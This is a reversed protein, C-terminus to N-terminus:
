GYFNTNPNNLNMPHSDIYGKNKGSGYGVAAAAPMGISAVPHKGVFRMGSKGGRVAIGFLDKIVKWVDAVIPIKGGAATKVIKDLQDLETKVEKSDLYRDKISALKTVQVVVPHKKNVVGTSSATKNFDCTPAEKRLRDEYADFLLNTFNSTATKTAAEKITHFPAGQLASQKIINYLLDSEKNFNADLEHLYDDVKSSLGSLKQHAKKLLGDPVLGNNERATDAATKFFSFDDHTIVPLYDSAVKEREINSHFAAVKESVNNGSAPSFEIYKDDAVDNLSLYTEVNASEVVRNIQERNLGYQEALKVCSDNLDVNEEVFAKSATKGM